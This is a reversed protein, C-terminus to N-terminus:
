SHLCDVWRYVPVPGRSARWLAALVRANLAVLLTMPVVYIVLFSLIIRYGIVYVRNGFLQANTRVEVKLQTSNVNTRVTTDVVHYEFVRPVSMALSGLIVAVLLQRFCRPMCM